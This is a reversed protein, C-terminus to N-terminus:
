SEVQFYVDVLDIKSGDAMVASSHEGHVNGWIDTSFVNTYNTNLSAIGKSQLATLEDADTVANENKDQWVLLESFNDDSSDVWGDGNSDFTALKAFGEGVDGGFLESRNDIQGNGNNDVALLADDGSIWGTQVKVGSNLLDFNVGEDISITQVGNGDLDFVIPTEFKIAIIDTNNFPNFDNQDAHLLYANHHFDIGGTKEFTRQAHFTLSASEGPALPTGLEWILEGRPLTDIDIDSKEPAIGAMPVDNVTVTGNTTDVTEPNGFFRDEM